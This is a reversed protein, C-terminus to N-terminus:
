QGSGQPVAVKKMADSAGWRYGAYGAIVASILASGFSAITPLTLKIDAQFLGLLIGAVIVLVGVVLIDDLHSDAGVPAKPPATAGGPDVDSM